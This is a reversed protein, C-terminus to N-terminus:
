PKTMVNLVESFSCKLTRVWKWASSHASTEGKTSGVESMVIGRVSILTSESLKFV